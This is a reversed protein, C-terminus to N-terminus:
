IVYPIFRKTAAMYRGYDAGFYDMNEQEERLASIVLLVTSLVSLGFVLLNMNKFFMGWTLFILSSYMPHRIFRYVRSAVLNTTKELTFLSQDQRKRSPKGISILLFVSDAVLYISISLLTWSVMQPISFVDHFWRDINLLIILLLTEWAFFRFFGHPAKRIFTRRSILLMVISVAIFVIGKFLM